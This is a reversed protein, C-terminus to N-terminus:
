HLARSTQQQMQEALGRVVALDADAGMAKELLKSTVGLLEKMIELELSMEKLQADNRIQEQELRKYESIWHRLSQEPNLMEAKLMTEIQAESPQM